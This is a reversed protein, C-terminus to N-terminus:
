YAEIIKFTMMLVFPLLHEESSFEYLYQRVAVAHRSSRLIMASADFHVYCKRSVNQIHTNHRHCNNNSNDAFPM